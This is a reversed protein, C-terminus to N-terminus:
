RPMGDSGMEDFYGRRKTFKSEHVSITRHQSANYLEQSAKCSTFHRLFGDMSYIKERDDLSIDDVAEVRIQCGKCSLGNQVKATGLDYYPFAVSAMCRPVEERLSKRPLVTDDRWLDLTQLTEVVDQEAVLAISKKRTFEELTYIGSVSRLVSLLQCLRHKSIKVAKYFASLSAVRLESAVQICEFCCRRATPLFLFGGFSDCLTCNLTLLQEYLRHFTFRPALGTRLLGRLAELGHKVVLVWSASDAPQHSPSRSKFRTESRSSSILPTRIVSLEFDRRHYSSVRLVAERESEVDYEISM